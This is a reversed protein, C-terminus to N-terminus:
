MGTPSRSAATTAKSARAPQEPELAAVCLLGDGDAVSLPEGLGDSMGVDVGAGEGEGLGVGKALGTATGAQAAICALQEPVGVAWSASIVRWPDLWGM